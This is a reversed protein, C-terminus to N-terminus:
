TAMRGSTFSTRNITSTATALYNEIETKQVSLSEYDLSSGDGEAIRVPRNVLLFRIAELCNQAKSTDGEWLINDNYQALATAITSSSTLSM